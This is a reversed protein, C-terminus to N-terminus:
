IKIGLKGIMEVLEDKRRRAVELKVGSTLEVFVGESKIFKKLYHLNILHTNHIRFFISKPLIEAFDKLSKSSLLSKQQDLFIYTYNGSAELYCINKFPIVELGNAIPVVMRDREPQNTQMLLLLSDIQTQQSIKDLQQIARSVALRLETADIPKLLYSLASLNIAEIAFQNYATTFILIFDRNECKEIMQLGSMGPMEIDLFVISPRLKQIIELGAEGSECEAVITLEPCFMGIKKVLANRSHHEDDVIICNISKM